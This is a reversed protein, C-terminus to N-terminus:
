EVVVPVFFHYSAVVINQYVILSSTCGVWFINNEAVSEFLLYQQENQDFIKNNTHRGGASQLKNLLWLSLFTTPPLQLTRTYQLVALAGSGSSTTRQLVKLYSINNNMKTLFRTIKQAQWLLFIHLLFSIPPLCLTRTCQTSALAGSGSPRTRQVM